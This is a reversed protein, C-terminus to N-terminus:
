GEAALASGTEIPLQSASWAKFGGVLDMVRVGEVQAL